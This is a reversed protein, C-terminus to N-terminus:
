RKGAVKKTGGVKYNGKIAQEVAKVYSEGGFQAAHVEIMAEQDEAFALPSSTGKGLNADIAVYDDGTVTGSFNFDGQFWQANTSGLNADVSVYDDGTVKGDLNGDGFFTYKGILTTADIGIGNFSTRGFQANDVVAMVTDGAGPSTVIGSTGTNRGTIVYNRLAAYPTAPDYDWLLDNDTMDLKAGAAISLSKVILM